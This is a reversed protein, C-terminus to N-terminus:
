GKLIGASDVIRNIAKQVADSTEDTHLWGVHVPDNQGSHAFLDGSRTLRIVLSNKRPPSDKVDRMVDLIESRSSANAIQKWQEKTVDRGSAWATAVANLSAMDLQEIAEKHEPPIEAKQLFKVDRVYREITIRTLGLAEFAADIFDMDLEYKTWNSEMLYLLRALGKGALKGASLLAQGASFAIDPEKEALSHEIIEDVKAYVSKTDVALTQDLATTILDNDM